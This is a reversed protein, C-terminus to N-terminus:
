LGIWLKSLSWCQQDYTCVTCHHSRTVEVSPISCNNVLMGHWHISNGVFVRQTNLALLLSNVSISGAKREDQMLPCLFPMCCSWHLTSDSGHLMFSERKCERWKVDPLLRLLRPFLRDSAEMSWRDPPSHVTCMCCRCHVVARCTSSTPACTSKYSGHLQVSILTFSLM